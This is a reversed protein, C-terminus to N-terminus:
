GRHWAGVLDPCFQSETGAGLRQETMVSRVCQVSGLLNRLGVQLVLPHNKITLAVPDLQGGSLHASEVLLANRETGNLLIREYKHNFGRESSLPKKTPIKESQTADSRPRGSRILDQSDKLLLEVSAAM